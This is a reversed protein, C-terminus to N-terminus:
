CSIHSTARTPKPGVRLKLHRWGGRAAARASPAVISLAWRGVRLTEKTWAVLDFLMAEMHARYVDSALWGELPMKPFLKAARQSDFFRDPMHWLDDPMRRGRNTGGEAWAPPLKPMPGPTKDKLAALASALSGAREKENASHDWGDEKFDGSQVICM